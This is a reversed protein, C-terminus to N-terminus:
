NTFARKTILGIQDPHRSFPEMGALVTTLGHQDLDPNAQVLMRALATMVEIDPREVDILKPTNSYDSFFAAAPFSQGIMRLLQRLKRRAPEPLDNFIDVLLPHGDNIAYEIRENHIKRVWVPSADTDIVVQGRQTYPRKARSRIQEIVQKLRTKV